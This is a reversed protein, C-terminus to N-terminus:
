IRQCTSSPFSFIAGGKFHGKFIVDPASDSKESSVTSSQDDEEEGSLHFYARKLKSGHAGM